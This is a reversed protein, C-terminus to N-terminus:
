LLVECARGDTEVHDRAVRIERLRLLRTNMESLRLDWDFGCAELGSSGALWCADAKIRKRLTEREQAASCLPSPWQTFRSFWEVDSHSLRFFEDYAHKAAFSRHFYSEAARLDTAPIVHLLDMGIFRSYKRAQETLHLKFRGIVDVSQGIKYLGDNSTALLYIGSVRGHGWRERYHGLRENRFQRLYDSFARTGQRPIDTM